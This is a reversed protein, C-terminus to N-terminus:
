LDDYPGTRHEVRCTKCADLHEDLDAIPIHQAVPEDTCVWTEATEDVVETQMDQSYSDHRQM